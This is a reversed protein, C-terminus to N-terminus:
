LFLFITDNITIKPVSKRERGIDYVHALALYKRSPQPSVSCFEVAEAQEWLAAARSDLPTAMCTAYPAYAGGTRFICIKPIHNRVTIPRRTFGLPHALIKTM